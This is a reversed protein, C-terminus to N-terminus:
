AQAAKDFLYFPRFETEPRISYLFELVLEITNELDKLSVVEVQTHMYRNPISVAATAVGEAVTQIAKADNGELEGSPAKQFPINRRRASAKLLNEVAPNTNPGHSICPGAGLRCPVAHPTRSGPDDSGLTVDIALSVKPKIAQSATQAGRSGIEEQASSVLYVAASLRSRDLKRLVECGVHVGARNDLAPACLLGNGLSTITPVFTMYDGIQVIAEAEERSTAGIDVWMEKILPVRGKEDRSQLHIPKKGFVGPAPGGKAHIAVQAGCLVGEDIGGVAEPILFGDDTIFKLMFGIQDSHVSLLVKPEKDRNVCAILNGHIDPCVDDACERLADFVVRQVHQESGSAGPTNLLKELLAPIQV